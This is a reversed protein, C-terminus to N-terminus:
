RPPEPKNVQFRTDKEPPVYPDSRNFLSLAELGHRWPYFTGLVAAQRFTKGKAWPLGDARLISQAARDTLDLGIAVADIDGHQTLRVVCETELNEKFVKGCIKIQQPQVM